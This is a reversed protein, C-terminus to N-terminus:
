LLLHCLRVSLRIQHMHCLQHPRRIAKQIKVDESFDGDALIINTFAPGSHKYPATDKSRFKQTSVSSGRQYGNISEGEIIHADHISSRSDPISFRRLLVAEADSLCDGRNGGCVVVVSFGWRAIKRHKEFQGRLARTLTILVLPVIVAALTIHTILIFFYIPRIIGQGGFHTEPRWPIIPSM